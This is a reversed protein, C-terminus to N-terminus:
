HFYDCLVTDVTGDTMSMGHIAVHENIFVRM